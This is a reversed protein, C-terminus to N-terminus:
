KRAKKAMKKIEDETPPPPVHDGIRASLGHLRIFALVALAIFAAEELLQFHGRDTFALVAQGIGTCGCLLLVANYALVTFPMGAYWLDVHTRTEALLFLLLAAYALMSFNRLPSNLPLTFDFYDRFLVLMVGLCAGMVLTTTLKGRRGLGQVLFYLACLIMGAAALRSLMGMNIMAASAPPTTFQDYIQRLASIGLMAAIFFSCFTEGPGVSVQRYQRTRWAPIMLFVTLGTGVLLSVLTLAFWVSGSVIHGIEWDFHLLGTLAWCGGALLALAAQVPLLRRHLTEFRRTSLGRVAPFHEAPVPPTASLQDRKTFVACDKASEQFAPEAGAPTENTITDTHEPQM